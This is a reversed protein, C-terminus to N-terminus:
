ADRRELCQSCTVHQWDYSLEITCLFYRSGVEVGCATMNATAAESGPAFHILSEPM